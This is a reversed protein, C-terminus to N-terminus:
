ALVDGGAHGGVDGTGGPRRGRRWIARPSRVHGRRSGMRTGMQLVQNLKSVDRHVIQLMRRFVYSVQKQFVQLLVQFVSSFVNCFM